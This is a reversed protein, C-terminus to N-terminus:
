PLPEALAGVGPEARAPGLQAALRAASTVDGKREFAALARERGARARAADGLRDDVAALAEAAVGRLELSDTQGALRVAEDAIRRGEDLAGADALVVARTVRWAVQAGLDDPAATAEALLTAATADDRTPRVSESASSGSAYSASRVPWTTRPVRRRVVRPM